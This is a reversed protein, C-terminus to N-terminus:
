AALLPVHERTAAFNVEPWKEQVLRLNIMTPAFYVLSGAADTALNTPYRDRFERLKKADACAIWRATQVDVTEFAADM